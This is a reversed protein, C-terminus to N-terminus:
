GVKRLLSCSLKRLDPGLVLGHVPSGSAHAIPRVIADDPITGPDLAVEHHHNCQGMASTNTYRLVGTTRVLGWSVPAPGYWHGVTLNGPEVRGSCRNADKPDCRRCLGTIGALWEAPVSPRQGVYMLRAIRMVEALKAEAEAVLDTRMGHHLSLVATHRNQLLLPPVVELADRVILILMRGWLQAQAVAYGIYPHYPEVCKVAVIQCEEFHEPVFAGDQHAFVLAHEGFLARLGVQADIGTADPQGVLHVAIEYNLM